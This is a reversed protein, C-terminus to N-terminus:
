DDIKTFGPLASTGELQVAHLKNPNMNLLNLITPAIQSTTVPARVISQKGGPVVVMVPVHTEPENFGGHEAQVAPLATNLSPEYNTGVNPVVVIDPVAPDVLPDPFLLKLSEGSLVQSVNLTAQNAPSLLVSAMAATQSQNTVWILATSKETIKKVTSAPFGGATLATQIASTLQVNRHAPDIPSEGHKAAIIIATSSLLGKASLATVMSGISADTHTLADILSPNPTGFSDAYGSGVSDKKAANVAQFNMGFITPVPAAVTGTHDKGNIENLVSTVRLDDFAKTAAVTKLITSGIEPVYLDQIGTGSPGNLFDYSPRKESYATRGGQQRIVEFVTNVRIMNHPLVPTCVGNVLQRPVKAPDVVPNAVTPDLDIGDKLDVLSGPAGTCTLNSPAFWARNYADDYYMGTVAPSGGTFIAATAPISDSPKTTSANTYSTAKSYLQGLASGPNNKVWLALDLSHMGDISIVLVRRVKQDDDAYLASNFIAPMLCLMGATALRRSLNM